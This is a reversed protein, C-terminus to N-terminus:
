EVSRAGRGGTSLGAVGSAVCAEARDSIRLRDATDVWAGGRFGAGASSVVGKLPDVDMGPWGSQDANGEFGPASSLAGDGHTGTFELGAPSGAAVVWEKVNGSLDMVGYYGAGSAVRGSTTTSFIGARLPGRQHDTGGSADGGSLTVDDYRANAGPTSSMETGDESAGTLAAVATIEGSGWAYEGNVPVSPGRAAKEFELETLPRLSMWDLFACVDPWSLFTMARASRETSCVLPSASCAVTNRAIVGDSNKHSADTVDRHLRESAALSNVFATWDGETIEYKM